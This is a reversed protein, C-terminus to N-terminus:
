TSYRLPLSRFKITYLICIADTHCITNANETETNPRSNRTTFLHMSCVIQGANVPFVDALRALSGSGDPAINCGPSDMFVRGITVGHDPRIHALCNQASSPDAQKSPSQPEEEQQPREDTLVVNNSTAAPWSWVIYSM